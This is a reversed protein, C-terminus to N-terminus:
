PMDRHIDARRTRREAKSNDHVYVNTEDYGIMLVVHGPIHQRHYFKSQYPLYFMDLGFLIVPIDQDLLQRSMKGLQGFANEKM